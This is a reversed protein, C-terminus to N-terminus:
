SRLQQQKEAQTARNIPTIKQNLDIGYSDLQIEKATTATSTNTNTVTLTENKTAGITDAHVSWLQKLVDETYKGRKAIDVNEHSSAGELECYHTNGKVDVFTLKKAESNMILISKDKFSVQLVGNNMRFLMANKTQLWKKIYILSKFPTTINIASEFHQKFHNYVQVKKHIDQPYDKFSYRTQVEKKDSSNRVIFEFDDGPPAILKCGDNFCVGVTGNSLVYGLGYKSSYDYWKTVQVEATLEQQGKTDKKSKNEEEKIQIDEESKENNETTLFHIKPSMPAPPMQANGRDQSTIGIPNFRNTGFFEVKPTKSAAKFLDFTPIKNGNPTKPFASARATNVFFAKFSTPNDQNDYTDPETSIRIRQSTSTLAFQKMYSASPPCALTSIPMLKPIPGGHDIFPHQLIEDLTLRKEPNTVLIKRILDKANESIPINDPFTYENEKIKKYTLKIDTTEFPPKGYLATYIIVGISWTDVQYSHGINGDLIEPAIYNPTGCLTRKKEGVFELKAALGFDGVKVQMKDNLFLNGLKLDRHIIRNSHIHKIADVIQILYCQVEFETLRKRRKLLDSMSHNHCLELMIYVNEQDEFVHEFKVINQHHLSQHLKIEIMLKQRSRSRNLNAKPIIKGAYIRNNELNTFIYAKAFGGRGLLKGRAYRKVHFDGNVKTIREEIIVPEEADKSLFNM